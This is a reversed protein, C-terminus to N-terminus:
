WRPECSRLRTQSEKRLNRRARRRRPRRGEEADAGQLNLDMFAPQKPKRVFRGRAPPAGCIHCLFCVCAATSLSTEPLFHQIERAASTVAQVWNGKEEEEEANETKEPEFSTQGASSSSAAGGEQVVDEGSFTKSATAILLADKKPRPRGGPGGKGVGKASRPMQVHSGPILMAEFQKKWTRLRAKQFQNGKLVESERFDEGLLAAILSRLEWYVRCGNIPAQVQYYRVKAATGFQMTGEPPRLVRTGARYTSQRNGLPEWAGPEEFRGRDSLLFIEGDLDGWASLSLPGEPGIVPVSKAFSNGEAPLLAGM